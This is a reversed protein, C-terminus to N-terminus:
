FQHNFNIYLGSDESSRGYDVVVITADNWAVRLGL